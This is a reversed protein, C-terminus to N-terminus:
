AKMFSYMQPNTVKSNAATVAMTLTGLQDILNEMATCTRVSISNEGWAPITNSEDGDLDGGSASTSGTGSDETGETEINSASQGGVKSSDTNKLLVGNVQDIRGDLKGDLIATVLLNEVDKTPIGNLKKSIADITIRTYPRLVEQLVQMRITRLLDAVYERIFEDDMIRGDNKQLIREFKEIDNSHFADVLNTMAVIEPDEKYPRVEQSDFPNISSAHLMSAMVLYKLCRLRARDGAEDYSKFAQFFATNASEYERSSMHMKGGLEQILAITRPHPIGGRVKMAKTYIERLKKHDKMRSYLQIQLAYIEMLNTSSASSSPTVASSSSSSESIGNSSKLLDRIVIQLKTTQNNEYLIQGYKLNTKFWLRENPCSGRQPHFLGLTSDYVYWALNQASSDSNNYSGQFLLASVRDLMGNMGKEVANPSVGENNPNTISELLRQYVNRAKDYESSQLRIKM